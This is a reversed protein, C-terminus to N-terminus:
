WVNSHDIPMDFLVERQAEIRDAAQQQQLTPANPIPTTDVVDYVDTASTIAYGSYCGTLILMAGFLCICLRTKKM